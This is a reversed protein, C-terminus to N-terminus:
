KLEKMKYRDGTAKVLEKLFEQSYGPRDLPACNGTEPAVIRGNKVLKVAGDNYRVILFEGLKKWSDVADKAAMATYRTLFDRAKLPDQQYLKMATAEIGEQANAYMDELGTQVQQMDGVMLSYRPRIMDAVWNYIWFASNWSFTVCDGNGEAYVDPVQNTNCYVPTFVTMNADDLGFWLVGGVVDPLNARMQAVFTFATQQTSIPRENFYEENDVKFTLPSLRYPMNFSGAGMDKTIDLATGEYHDRMARQIDRVSVKQDPKVYLPMPEKSEGQIYSLYAQGTGKSFMNYYSWVRAECFLLGSFDLPCYADAFSFDKNAGSFYGKERAFSIVDPAYLCNEKDNLNFQHIRSQNAHAAICDDPIRVAVWVAGKVGPGKGIMEMIWVENPDAISFSEGSSYYGYEKVLDTMVKIAEKASRSRQLAVYILSGYDMVGTTDVLEPRGGFTTEGITVQFENMNGIVNYTEKAEKIQGLYKGSDWDYISRMAGDPHKAAPHHCLFGFLGYSDASYSVIVSGDASAKKGVILNTCTWGNLVFATLLVVATLVRKMMFM